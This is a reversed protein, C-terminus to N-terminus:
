NQFTFLTLSNKLTADFRFTLIGYGVKPASDFHTGLESWKKAGYSDGEGLRGCM